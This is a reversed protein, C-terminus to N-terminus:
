YSTGYRDYGVYKEIGRMIRSGPAFLNGAMEADIRSYGMAGFIMGLLAAVASLEGEGPAPGLTTKIADKARPDRFIAIVQKAKSKHAGSPEVERREWRAITNGTVQLLGAWAEQSLSLEERINKLQKGIIGTPEKAM